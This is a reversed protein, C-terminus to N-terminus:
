EKDSTAVDAPADKEAPADTPEDANESAEAPVPAKPAPDSDKPSESTEAPIEAKTEDKPEEAPKEESEQLLEDTRSAWKRKGFINEVDETFVVEREELLAALRAHGEANDRLIQKAREYQENIIRQVEDDILAATKDGYPKSFSYEENTYYCLNPLADSM